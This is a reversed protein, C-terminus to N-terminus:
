PAPASKPSTFETTRGCENNGYVVAHADEAGLVSALRGEADKAVGTLVIFATGVADSPITSPDTLGARVAGVARMAADAAAPDTGREADLIVQPCSDLGLRDATATSGAAMACLLRLQAWAAGRAESFASQVAPVDRPALGLRDLVEPTPNFSACPLLYQITGVSALQKWDNQSPDRRARRRAQASQSADAEALREAELRSAEDTLSALRQSCAHLSAVLNANAVLAPDVTPEQDITMRGDDLGASARRAGRTGADSASSWLRSAGLASAAGVFTGAVAFVFDRGTM